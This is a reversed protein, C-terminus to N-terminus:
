LEDLNAIVEFDVLLEYVNAVQALEVESHLPTTKPPNGTISISKPSRVILILTIVVVAAAALVTAGRWGRLITPFSLIKPVPTTQKEKQGSHEEEGKKLVVGKRSLSAKQRVMENFNEPPEKVSVQGLVDWLKKSDNWDPPLEKM